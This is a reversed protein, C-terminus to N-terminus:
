VKSRWRRRYSGSLEPQQFTQALSEDLISLENQLIRAERTALDGVERLLARLEDATVLRESGAVSGDIAEVGVVQALRAQHSEFIQALGLWYSVSRNAAIMMAQGMPLLFDAAVPDDRGGPPSHAAPGASPREFRRCNAAALDAMAGLVGIMPGLLTAAPSAAGPNGGAMSQGSLNEKLAIGALWADRMAIFIGTVPDHRSRGSGSGFSGEANSM